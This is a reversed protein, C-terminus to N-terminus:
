LRTVLHVFVYHEPERLDPDDAAYVGRRYGLELKLNSGLNRELSGPRDADPEAPVAEVPDFADAILERVEMRDLAAGEEAAVPLAGLLLVALTLVLTRSLKSM